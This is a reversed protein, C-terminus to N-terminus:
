YLEESVQERESSRVRIYNGNEKSRDTREVRVVMFVDAARVVAISKAGMGIM